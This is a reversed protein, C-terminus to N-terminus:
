GITRAGSAKWAEYPSLGREHKSARAKSVQAPSPEAPGSMEDDFHRILAARARAVRSRLTSPEVHQIVAAEGYTLGTEVILLLAERQVPPLRALAKRLDRSYLADEQDAREVLLSAHAIPDLPTDRWSRRASTFFTNRAIRFLWAKFNSGPLFRSRAAWARVLTEQVLDDTNTDNQTLRRAYGRLAPLMAQTAAAFNTQSDIMMDDRAVVVASM